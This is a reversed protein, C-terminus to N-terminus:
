GPVFKYGRGRVSIFHVPHAPDPEFYRRLRVIFNDVTRTDSYDRLKWVKELLEERQIIRGPHEAFYRLLEFELQTLQLAKGDATATHTELNVQTDGIRLRLPARRGSTRDWDRRRLASRVRAQLEPLNFPKALYDDAGAELGAVRDEASNRVTLMLVPTYNGAERLSRCFDFGTMDPLMVDLLLVAYERELLAAAAERGTGAVDVLFGELELNLKLGTALSTEDEVVLLRPRDSM